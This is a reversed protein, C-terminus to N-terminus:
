DGFKLQRYFEKKLEHYRRYGPFSPSPNQSNWQEYQQSLRAATEPNTAVVNNSEAIDLELNYLEMQEGRNVAVLKWPGSRVAWETGDDKRWFLAPHPLGNNRSDGLFSVLDVGELKNVM